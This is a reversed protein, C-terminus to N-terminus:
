ERDLALFRSDSSTETKSVKGDPWRVTVTVEGEADGPVAFILDSSSQSLYGSGASVEATQPKLDGADVTVKSGVGSPNGTRGNLRIRIPHNKARESLENLFIQPDGNNIGVVFDEWGDLNVDVSALSRADGPVELGSEHPWVFEFPEDSNGTGRLLTSLGGDLRGQETTIHFNNQM